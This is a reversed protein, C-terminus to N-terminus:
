NHFVQIHEHKPFLSLLHSPLRVYPNLSAFAFLPLPAIPATLLWLVAHSVLLVPSSSHSLLLLCDRAM